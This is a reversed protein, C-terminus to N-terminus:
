TKIITNAIEKPKFDKWYEEDNRKWIGDWYEDHSSINLKQDRLKGRKIAENLSCDIWIMYSFYNILEPRFLGIGEIIIKGSNSIEKYQGISNIIWDFERYVIIQNGNLFPLCVEKELRSFDICEWKSYEIIEFGRFFSDVSVLPINMKASLNNAFTTKGAGGFGSVAIIAPAKLLDLTNVLKKSINM